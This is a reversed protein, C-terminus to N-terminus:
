GHNTVNLQTFIAPTGPEQQYDKSIDILDKGLMETLKGSVSVAHIHGVAFGYEYLYARQVPTSFYWEDSIEGGYAMNLVLCRPLGKLIEHASRTGSEMTLMSPRLSQGRVFSRMGNGTSEKNYKKATKLDYIPAVFKGEQFIATDKKLVGEGDFYNGAFRSHKFGYDTFNVRPDFIQQDLKNSLYSTGEHFQAGRIDESMRMGLEPFALFMVPISGEPLKVTELDKQIQWESRQIMELIPEGNYGSGLIGEAFETSGYNKYTFFVETSDYKSSLTGQYSSSLQKSVVEHQLLGTWIKSPYKERLYSLAESVEAVFDRSGKSPLAEASSAQHTPLDFEYPVGVMGKEQTAELLAEDSIEGIHSYSYIKGDRFSRAANKTVEKATVGTIKGDGVTISMGVTKEKLIDFNM